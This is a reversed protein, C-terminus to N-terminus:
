YTAYAHLYLTSLRIKHLEKQGTYHYGFQACVVNAEAMSWQHDCVAGWRGGLCLQVRGERETEGGVLQVDGDQCNDPFAHVISARTKYINQM